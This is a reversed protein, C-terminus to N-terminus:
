EAQSSIKMQTLLQRFPFYAQALARPQPNKELANFLKRCHLELENKRCIASSAILQHLIHRASDWELSTIYRDLEPLRINMEERFIRRLGPVPDEAANQGPNERVALDLQLLEMTIARIHESQVPKLLVANVSAQELKQRMARSNDGTIIVIAPLPCQSPWSKRLSEVLSLGCADALHIDMFILEPLLKLAAHRAEKATRAQKVHGLVQRLAQVTHLRSIRHDDVVLVRPGQNFSVTKM